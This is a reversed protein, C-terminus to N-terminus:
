RVSGGSNYRAFLTQLDPATELASDNKQVGWSYAMDMEPNPVLQRWRSLIDVAQQVTPMVYHGGTDTKWDGGGFTQYIPVIQDRPIGADVAAAVYRDIIDFDCGPLDTRCPYAALGFLDVHSNAPNYTEKFSPQVASAMNMLVIIVKAGSINDHIWDAEARLNGAACAHSPNSIGASLRPDPDDMLFFGFLNRSGAYARVIRLFDQDVGGCRGIWVLARDSPKLQKIERPMSVDALNFGADAPLFAGDVAFNHNPAYHLTPEASAARTGVVTLLLAAAMFLTLKDLAPRPRQM